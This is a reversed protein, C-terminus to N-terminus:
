ILINENVNGISVLEYVYVEYLFYIYYRYLIFFYIDICYWYDNYIVFFILIIFGYNIIKCIYYVRNMFIVWFLVYNMNLGICM